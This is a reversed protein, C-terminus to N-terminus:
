AATRVGSDLLPRLIQDSLARVVPVAVADGMLKLAAVEGAPLRYSDPLGMLRAAERGTLRRVRVRGEDCAVVFQRSSGGAPTRLCGALGDFRVELRQVKVGGEVRVRRYAAGVRREGSALVADLRARHLPSLLDLLAAARDEDLWDVSSEPQLLAALDTNRRPPADLRWWVWGAKLDDPLAAHAARIRASHFPDGAPVGGAVPARSAILFLRPRSQPLWLVADAEVAGFAYGGDRLARCVAAFDRGQNSTLLGMVNEIVILGPARGQEALGTMLRWFGWFAGSRRADLGGRAGALSVDQCPSSAWALDAHGPLDDPTLDWVDALRLTDPDAHNARWSAAKAADLDNAFTTRFGALGLGALGGGAFFEYLSFPERNAM